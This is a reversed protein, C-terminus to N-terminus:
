QGAAIHASPREDNVLRGMRQQQEVDIGLLGNASPAGTTLCESDRLSVTPAANSPADRFAFVSSLRGNWIVPVLAKPCKVKMTERDDMERKLWSM